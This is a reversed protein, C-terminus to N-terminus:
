DYCPDLKAGANYITRIVTRLWDLQQRKRLESLLSVESKLLEEPFGLFRHGISKLYGNINDENAFLWHSWRVATRGSPRDDYDEPNIRGDITDSIVAEAYHKYPVISEPLMRSIRHCAPNDCQHRPIRLWEHDGTEYIVKRKCHDRYLLRGIKCHPCLYDRGEPLFITALGRGSQYLLCVQITLKLTRTDTLVVPESVGKRKKDSLCYVSCDSSM